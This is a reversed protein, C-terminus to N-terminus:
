TEYGNPFIHSDSTPVGALRLPKNNKKIGMSRKQEVITADNKKKRTGCLEKRPLTYGSLTETNFHDCM